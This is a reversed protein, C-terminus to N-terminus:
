FIQVSKINSCLVPAPDHLRVTPISGPSISCKEFTREFGALPQGAQTESEAPLRLPLRPPRINDLHDSGTHRRHPERPEGPRAQPGVSKPRHHIKRPPQWVRREKGRRVDVGLNGLPRPLQADCEDIERTVSM